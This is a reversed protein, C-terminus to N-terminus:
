VGNQCIEQRNKNVFIFPAQAYIDLLMLAPEVVIVHLLDIALPRMQEECVGVGQHIVDHNFPAAVEVLGHDIMIIQEIQGVIRWGMMILLWGEFSVLHHKPFHIFFRTDVGNGLYTANAGLHVRLLLQFELLIRRALGDVFMM